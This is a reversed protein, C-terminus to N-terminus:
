QCGCGASRHHRHHFSHREACYNDWLGACPAPEECCKPGFPHRANHFGKYTRDITFYDPHAVQAPSAGDAILQPQDHAASDIAVEATEAGGTIFRSLWSAEAQQDSAILVLAFLFTGLLSKM